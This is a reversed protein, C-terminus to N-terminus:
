FRIFSLQSKASTSMEWKATGITLVSKAGHIAYGNAEIQKILDDQDLAPHTKRTDIVLRTRFPSLTLLDADISDPLVLAEIKTGKAVSLYKSGDKISTYIDIKLSLAKKTSYRYFVVALFM